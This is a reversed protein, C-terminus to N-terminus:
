GEDDKYKRMDFNQRKGYRRDLYESDIILSTWWHKWFPTDERALAEIPCPVTWGNAQCWNSLCRIDPNYHINSSSPSYAVIYVNRDHCFDLRFHCEGFPSLITLRTKVTWDTSGVEHLRQSFYQPSYRTRNAPIDAKEMLRKVCKYEGAAEIMTLDDFSLDFGLLPAKQQKKKKAPV